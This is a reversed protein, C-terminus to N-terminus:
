AYDLIAIVESATTAADEFRAEGYSGGFKAGSACGSRCPLLDTPYQRAGIALVAVCRFACKVM